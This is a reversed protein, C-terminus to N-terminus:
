LVPVPPPAITGSAVPTTQTSTSSGPYVYPTASVTATPTPTVTPTTTVTAPEGLNLTFTGSDTAADPPLTVTKAGATQTFTGQSTTVSVSAVLNPPLKRLIYIFQNLGPRTAQITTEKFYYKKGTTPTFTVKLKVAQPTPVTIDFNLQASAYGALVSDASVRYQYYGIVGVGIVAVMLFIAVIINAKRRTETM